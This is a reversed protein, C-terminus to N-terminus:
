FTLLNFSSLIVNASCNEILNLVFDRYRLPEEFKINPSLVFEPHKEAYRLMDYTQSNSQEVFFCYEEYLPRFGTAIRDSERYMERLIVESANEVAIENLVVTLNMKM